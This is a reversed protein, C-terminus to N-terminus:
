LQLRKLRLANMLVCISSLTMAVAAIIPSLLIGFAPYLAGAAVPILASNYAFAWFLNQRINRLTARSLRIAAAVKRLDGAVLVVEASEIAVDTASGITIGVDAAALAPADNIGDGVFAVKGARQLRKVAAVKGDPMVGAEVQDIGLKAAITDATAANDGTIMALKFGSQHLLRVAEPTTERIPDSVAFSALHRGGHALYLITAAPSDDECFGATSLPVGEDQLFQKSGIILEEDNVLARVGRGSVAEFNHIKSNASIGRETAAQVIARAIPHESRHEVSAALQLIENENTADATRIKTLTPAGITLTGTKDFAIVSCDALSQLADGQRFLIGMGAGRGTGVMISTPTALGMACPCAIILVAVANIVALALAPAPGFIVWILFTLAALALVLPVFLSTVKDVMAQIPLKAGQANRVMEIIRALVSDSGLSTARYLVSGTTNITGGVVPDGPGRHVPVPEGTIMSQDIHTEGEILEGDVPLREGPRLVVQDGPHVEAVPIESIEGQRMVRATAPRLGALRQIARSTKGRTRHELWRGVLVLTIITASAEFYVHATGEPLIRPIIVAITSYLWAASTGIMVLSNMDPAGRRLAALGHRYFRLGPGFQVISALLLFLLQLYSEAVHAALWLHFAPIFHSGMDLVVIPVTVIAAILAARRYRNAEVEGDDEERGSERKDDVVAEYGASAVAAIVAEPDPEEQFIVTATAAAFNVAASNVGHVSHIAKEISGACSACSMGHLKFRLGHSTASM